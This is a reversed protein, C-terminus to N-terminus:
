TINFTPCVLVDFAVSNKVNQMVGKWSKVGILPARKRSFLVIKDVFTRCFGGVLGGLRPSFQVKLKQTGLKFRKTAVSLGKMTGRGVSKANQEDLGHLFILFNIFMDSFTTEIQLELAQICCSMGKGQERPHCAHSPWKPPPISGTDDPGEDEDTGAVTQEEPSLFSVAFFM